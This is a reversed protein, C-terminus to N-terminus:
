GLADIVKRKLDDVTGDNVLIQTWEYFSDLETESAHGDVNEEHDVNTPRDILWVEGGMRKIARVENEFRCDPVIVTRGHDLEYMIKRTNAKLWFDPVWNRFLDTGVHQLAHRPTMQWYGDHEEKLDGHVHVDDWGFLIKVADKLPGAWPLKTAMEEGIKDVITDAVLDKGSGRRYGLGILKARM